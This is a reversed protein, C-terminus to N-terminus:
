CRVGLKPEKGRHTHAHEATDSEKHGWPSYGALSRQGYLKGPIFAPMPQLKRKWPIKEFRPISGTDRTDGKKAPPNKGM